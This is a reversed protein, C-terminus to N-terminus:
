KRTCLGFRSVCNAYRSCKTGKLPKLHRVSGWVMGDLGQQQRAGPTQLPEQARLIPDSSRESWGSSRSPIHLRHNWTSVKPTEHALNARVVVPPAYQADVTDMRGVDSALSIPQRKACVLITRCFQHRRIRGALPRSKRREGLEVSLVAVGNGGLAVGNGRLADPYGRHGDFVGGRKGGSAHHEVDRSGADRCALMRVLRDGQGGGGVDVM